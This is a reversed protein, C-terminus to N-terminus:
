YYTGPRPVKPLRGPHVYLIETDLCQLSGGSIKGSKEMDDVITRIWARCGEGDATFRYRDRGKDVILQLYEAASRLGNPTLTVQAVINNSIRYAVKNILVVGDTGNQGPTMDFIVSTSSADCFFLRWHNVDNTPPSAVAYIATVFHTSLIPQTNPFCHVPM